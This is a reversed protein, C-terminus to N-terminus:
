RKKDQHIRRGLLTRSGGPRDVRVGKVGAAGREGDAASGAYDVTM